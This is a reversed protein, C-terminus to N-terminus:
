QHKRGPGLLTPADSEQLLRKLALSSYDRRLFEQAVDDTFDSYRSYRLELSKEQANGPFNLNKVMDLNLVLDQQAALVAKMTFGFVDENEHKPVSHFLIPGSDLGRSLFHWTAGVFNPRSDFMAWFNCASGRYYPSLGMHLNIGSNEVLFECLWGKIFSSGFVIYMESDLAVELDVRALRNLDGFKCSFTKVNKSAFRHNPFLNNEANRVHSLYENMTESNTYFDEVQGPHVTSVEQVAYVIDAVEALSNILAIHRPQNSTFITIKL